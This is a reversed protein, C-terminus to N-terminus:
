NYNWTWLFLFSPFDYTIWFSCAPVAILLYNMLKRAQNHLKPSVSAL